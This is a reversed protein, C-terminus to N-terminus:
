SRRWFREMELYTFSASWAILVFGTLAEAGSLLRIAGLPAQDGYGVTTFTMASLYVLDLLQPVADRAVSGTGPLLLLLWYAIGFLGIEIAHLVIVAGIVYLVKIRGHTRVGALRRSIFVLGEYHLLVCAGVTALTAALVAANALWDAYV